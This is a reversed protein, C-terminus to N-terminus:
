DCRRFILSRSAALSLHLQVSCMHVGSSLYSKGDDGPAGTSQIDQYEPSRSRKLGRANALLETSYPALDTLHAISPLQMM